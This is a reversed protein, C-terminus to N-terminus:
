LRAKIYLIISRLQNPEFWEIEKNRKWYGIQKRAYRRIASYLENELEERTIKKQLFRALSRYELGLETMRKYSLGNAHLKKAENIMGSRLRERLRLEIKKDLEEMDPAIGIWLVEGVNKCLNKCLDSRQLNQPYSCLDSRQNVLDKKNHSAAIELARILRIKNNRESPTAMAKARVVAKKQLMAYLQAATKKELRLRLKADPEVDSLPIRGVLADIYFGTGGAIIPLKGRKQIDHIAKIAHKVFDDASFRRKPVAVDLLHHSVARMERKTIKGTGIDLGRYVQRSDASIVEGNFKKALQVALVSKGSATPGVLVLLKQQEM